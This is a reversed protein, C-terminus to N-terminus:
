KPIGFPEDKLLACTCLACELRPLNCHMESRRPMGSPEDQVNTCELVPQHALLKCHAAGCRPMEFPEDKLLACKCM